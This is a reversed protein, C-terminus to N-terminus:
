QHHLFYSFKFVFYFGETCLFHQTGILSFLGLELKHSVAQLHLYLADIQLGCLLLLFSEAESFPAEKSSALFIEVVPQPSHLKLTQFNVSNQFCNSFNADLLSKVEGTLSTYVHCVSSLDCICEIYSSGSEQSGMGAKVNKGAYFSM